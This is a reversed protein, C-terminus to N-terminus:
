LKSCIDEHMSTRQRDQVKFFAALGEEHYIMVWADATNKYHREEGAQLSLQESFFTTSSTMGLSRYRAAHELDESPIAGRM